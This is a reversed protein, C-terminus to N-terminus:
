RPVKQISPGARTGRGPPSGPVVAVPSHWYSGPESDQGQWNGPTHGRLLCKDRQADMQLKQLSRMLSVHLASQISNFATSMHYVASLCSDKRVRWSLSAKCIGCTGWHPALKRHAMTCAHHWSICLHGSCDGPAEAVPANSTGRMDKLTEAAM